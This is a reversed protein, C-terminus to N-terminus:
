RWDGGLRERLWAEFEPGLDPRDLAMSVVTQLYGLPAGTDYHPASIVEVGVKGARALTTIADMPYFERGEFRSWGEALLPFIEPTYLYRGLSVLSSPETGRAPKEVIARLDMNEDVDLVGFRSVDQGSLDKAALVSQGTRRHRELLQRSVNPAGFIDDPFAVIVPDTGAFARALLLAHGTGRMETQRVVTVSVNPPRAKELKALAGEATFVADLEADHDFWDEVARKRRSSVLLIEDIGAEVMEQVVLDIAPRDVVPLLEKPVVRTVPLFRTGYGAAVIVGKIGM